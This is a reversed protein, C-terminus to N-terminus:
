LRARACLVLFALGQYGVFIAWLVQRYFNFEDGVIGKNQLTFCQQCRTTNLPLEAGSTVNYCLGNAYNFTHPCSYGDIEVIAFLFAGWQSPPFKRTLLAEFHFICRTCRVCQMTGSVSM